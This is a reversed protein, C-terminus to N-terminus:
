AAVAFQAARVPRPVPWFTQCAPSSHRFASQKIFHGPKSMADGQERYPNRRERVQGILDNAQFGQLRVLSLCEGDFARVPLRGRFKENHWDPFPGIAAAVILAPLAWTM